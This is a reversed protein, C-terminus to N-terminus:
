FSICQVEACIDNLFAEKLYAFESPVVKGANSSKHKVFKMRRFLFKAWSKKVEFSGGQTKL